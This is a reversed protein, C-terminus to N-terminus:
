PAPTGAVSFRLGYGPAQEPAFRRFSPIPSVASQLQSKQRADGGRGGCLGSCVLLQRDHLSCSPEAGALKDPVRLGSRGSGQEQHDIQGSLAGQQVAVAHGNGRRCYRGAALSALRRGAHEGDQLLLDHMPRAGIVIRRHGVHLPEGRLTDCHMGAIQGAVRRRMAADPQGPAKGLQEVADRLDARRDHDCVLRSIASCARLVASYWRAVSSNARFFPRAAPPLRATCQGFEFLAFAACSCAMRCCLASIAFYLACTAANSRVWQARCRPM